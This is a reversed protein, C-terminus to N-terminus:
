EEEKIWTKLVNNNLNDDLNVEDYENTLITDEYFQMSAELNTSAWLCEWKDNKYGLVSYPYLLEEEQDDEHIGNDDLCFFGPESDAEYLADAAEKPTLEKVEAAKPWSAVFAGDYAEDLADRLDMNECSQDESLITVTFTTAFYKRSM